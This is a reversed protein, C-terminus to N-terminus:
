TPAARSRAFRRASVGAIGIALLAFCSPEPIRSVPVASVEGLLGDVDDTIGSTDAFTLTTTAADATFTYAYPTFLTAFDMMGIASIGINFAHAGSVISVNMSQPLSYDVAGYDFSVIYSKGVTTPFSQSLVGNDPKNGAGFSADYAGPTANAIGCCATYATQVIALVDGSDSWGSLDGTAFDGNTLLNAHAAGSLALMAMTAVSCRLGRVM